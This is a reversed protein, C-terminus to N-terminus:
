TKRFKYIKNVHVNGDEIIKFVCARKEHSLFFFINLYTIFDM